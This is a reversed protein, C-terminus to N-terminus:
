GLLESHGTRSFYNVVCSFIVLSFSVVFCCCYVFVVRPYFPLLRFVFAITKGVLLAGHAINKHFRGFDQM